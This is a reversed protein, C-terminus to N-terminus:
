LQRAGWGQHHHGPRPGPRRGGAGGAGEPQHDSLYRTLDDPVSERRQPGRPRLDRPLLARGERRLAPRRAGGGGPPPQPRVQQRRAHHRHQLRRPGPAGPAVAARERLDAEQHPRVGGAGGGGRPLLREHHGPVAGAGGHGLDAGEGDKGGGAHM